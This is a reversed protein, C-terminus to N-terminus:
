PGVRSQHLPTRARNTRYPMPPFVCNLPANDRCSTCMLLAIAAFRPRRPPAGAVQM